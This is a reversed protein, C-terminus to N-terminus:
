QPLAGHTRSTIEIVGEGGCVSCDPPNEGRGIAEMAADLGLASGSGDCAECEMGLAPCHKCVHTVDVPDEAEDPDNGFDDNDLWHHRANRCDACRRCVPNAESHTNM